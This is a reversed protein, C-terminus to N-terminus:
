QNEPSAAPTSVSRPDPTCENPQDIDPGMLRGKSVEVFNCIPGMWKLWPRLVQFFLKLGVIALVAMIVTLNLALVPEMLTSFALGLLAFPLTVIIVRVLWRRYRRSSRPLRGHTRQDQPNRLAIEPDDSPENLTMVAFGGLLNILLIAVFSPWAQLSFASGSQVPLESKWYHSGRDILNALAMANYHIGPVNEAPGPVWDGTTLYQGGFMVIRDGVMLRRDDDTIAREFDLYPVAQVYRCLPDENGRALPPVAERVLRILRPLSGPQASRCRSISEGHLRKLMAEFAVHEDPVSPQKSRKLGVGWRVALPERFDSNWRLRCRLRIRAVEFSDTAKAIEANCSEIDLSPGSVALMECNGVDRKSRYQTMCQSAYLLAAPSLAYDGQPTNQPDIPQIADRKPVLEYGPGELYAPSTVAVRDLAQVAASPLPGDSAPNQSQPDRPARLSQSTAFVVPTGGYQIICDLKALESAYCLKKDGWAKFNTVAAVRAVYCKFADRHDVARAKACGSLTTDVEDLPPVAKEPDLLEPDADDFLFDIFVAQPRPKVGSRVQGQAIDQLADAQDDLSLLKARSTSAPADRHDLSPPPQGRESVEDMYLISIPPPGVRRRGFGCSPHQGVANGPAKASQCDYDDAMIRQWVALNRDYAWQDIQFPNLWALLMVGATELMAAAIIRLM